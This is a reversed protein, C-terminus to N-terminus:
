NKTTNACTQTQNATSANTELTAFLLADQTKKHMLYLLNLNRKRQIKTTTNKLVSTASTQCKSINKYIHWPM